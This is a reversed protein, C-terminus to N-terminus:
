PDAQDPADVPRNEVRAGPTRILMSRAEQTIRYSIYAGDTSCQTVLNQTVLLRGASADVREAGVYWKHGDTVLEAHYDAADPGAAASMLRLIKTMGRTLPTLSMRIEQVTRDRHITLARPGCVPVRRHLLHFHYVSSGREADHKKSYDVYRCSRSSVNTM